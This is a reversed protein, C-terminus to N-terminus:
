TSEEQNMVTEFDCGGAIQFGDEAM